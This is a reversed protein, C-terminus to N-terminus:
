NMKACIHQKSIEEREEETVHPCTTCNMQRPVRFKLCCVERVCM